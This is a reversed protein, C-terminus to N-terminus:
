RGAAKAPRIPSLVHRKAYEGRGGGCAKGERERRTRGGERMAMAMASMVAASMVVATLMAASMVTSPVRMTSMGMVGPAARM